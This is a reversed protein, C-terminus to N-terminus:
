WDLKSYFESAINRTHEYVHSVERDTLDIKWKKVMSKSDRKLVHTKKGLELEKPGTTSALIKNKVRESFPLKFETYIRKFGNVPDVSLDEHRVFMWYPFKKKYLSIVHHYIKWRLTAEEVINSDSQRFNCIENKLPMLYNEMLEHQSLYEKPDVRWGVRKISNVYAAPHRVIVLVDCQYVKYLWAASFLALPDKIIYGNRTMGRFYRQGNRLLAGISSRFGSMQLVEKKWSVGRWSLCCDLYAKFDKEEDRTVYHFHHKLPCTARITKLNRSFPEYIYNKKNSLNLMEGVWTTGSRNSGTVLIHNRKSEKKKLM